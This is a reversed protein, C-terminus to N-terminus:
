RLPTPLQLQQNRTKSHVSPGPTQCTSDPRQAQFHSQHTGKSKFTYPSLPVEHRRGAGARPQQTEVRCASWPAASVSALPGRKWTPPVAESNVASTEQRPDPSTSFTEQLKEPNVWSISGRGAIFELSFSLEWSTGLSWFMTTAFSFFFCYNFFFRRYAPGPGSSHQRPKTCQM